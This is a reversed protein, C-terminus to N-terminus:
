VPVHVIPAASLGGFFASASAGAIRDPLKLKMALPEIGGQQWMASAIGGTSLLQAPDVDRGLADLEAVAVHNVAAIAYAEARLRELDDGDRRPPEIGFTTCATILDTIEIGAVASAFTLVDLFQGRKPAPRYRRGGPGVRQERTRGWALLTHDGIPTAVVAPADAYLKWPRDRYPGGLGQLGFWWGGERSRSPGCARSLGAIEAHLGAGLVTAGQRYGADRLWRGFAALTMIRIRRSAGAVTRARHAAIFAAVEPRPVAGAHVITESVVFGAVVEICVAIIVAGNSDRISRVILHRRARRGARSPLPKPDALPQARV